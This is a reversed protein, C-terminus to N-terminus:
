EAYDPKGRTIECMGRILKVANKMDEQRQLLRNTLCVFVSDITGEINLQQYTVQMSELEGAGKKAGESGTLILLSSYVLGLNLLNM